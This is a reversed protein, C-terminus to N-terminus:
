TKEIKSAEIWKKGDKESVVGTVTAKAESKCQHGAKEAAENKTIYYETTAGAADKVVLVDQCKSADAKKLSCKACMLSGSLTTEDAARAVHVLGVLLFAALAITGISKMVGAEM